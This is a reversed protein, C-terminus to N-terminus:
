SPGLPSSTIEFLSGGGPVLIMFRSSPTVALSTGCTWSGPLVGGVTCGSPEGFGELVLYLAHLGVQGIM